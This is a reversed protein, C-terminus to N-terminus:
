KQLSVVFSFLCNEFVFVHIDLENQIKDIPCGVREIINVNDINIMYNWGPEALKLKSDSKIPPFVPIVALDFTIM